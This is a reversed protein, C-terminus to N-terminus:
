LDGPRLRQLVTGDGSLRVRGFRIASVDAVSRLPTIVSIVAREFNIGRLVGVDLLRAGPGMLGVYLGQFLGVPTVGVKRGGYLEELKQTSDRQIGRESCLWIQDDLREGYVVPQELAQAADRLERTRLAEGWGLWSDIMCMESLDLDHVRAHELHRHLRGARMLRLYSESRATTPDFGLTRLPSGSVLESWVALSTPAAGSGIWLVETPRLALLEDPLRVDRGGGAGVWVCEAITLRGGAARIPQLLRQAALPGVGGRLPAVIDGAFVTELTRLEGLNGVPASAVAAVVTGPLSAEFQGPDLGLYGVTGSLAVARNLLALTAASRGSNTSGVVAVVGTEAAEPGPHEIM